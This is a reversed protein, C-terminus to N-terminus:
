AAGGVQLNKVNRMDANTKQILRQNNAILDDVKKAEDSCIQVLEQNQLNKEELKHENEQVLAAVQGCLPSLLCVQRDSVQVDAQLLLPLQKQWIGQRWSRERVGRHQRQVAHPDRGDGSQTAARFLVHRGGSWSAAASPQGADTEQFM